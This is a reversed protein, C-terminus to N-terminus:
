TAAAPLAELGVSIRMCNAATTLTCAAEAANSFAMVLKPPDPPGRHARHVNLMADTLQTLAAVLWEFHKADDGIEASIARLQEFNPMEDSHKSRNIPLGLKARLAMECVTMVDVNNACSDALEKLASLHVSDAQKVSDIFETCQECVMKCWRAVFGDVLALADDIRGADLASHDHRVM